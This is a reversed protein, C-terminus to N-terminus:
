LLIHMNRCIAQRLFMHGKNFNKAFLHQRFYAWEDAPIDTLSKLQRYIADCKQEFDPM